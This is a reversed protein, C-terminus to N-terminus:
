RASAGLFHQIEDVQAPTVTSPPSSRAWPLRQESPLKGSDLFCDFAAGLGNIAVGAGKAIKQETVDTVTTIEGSSVYSLAHLQVFPRCDELTTAPYEMEGYLYSYFARHNDDLPLTEVPPESEVRGDNWEVRWSVSGDFSIRAKDTILVERNAPDSDTEATCAHSLAMRVVTGDTTKGRVFFTDAGEIDHARYLEAEVCEMQMRSDLNPGGAFFTCTQVNHSAANGMVSDLVLRGNLQLRGAWPARKFYERPRGRMARLRVEHVRGFEGALIRRKFEYRPTGATLSFGIYTAFPSQADVRIMEELELPDLCPPKELYVPLGREVAAKHMVAHLSIPTPIVVLDMEGAMEDLMEIYDNFFRVGREKFRWEEMKGQFKAPDPDCTCVLRSVGEEELRVMCGHHTGAFGGMGIIGVRLPAGRKLPYTRTQRNTM